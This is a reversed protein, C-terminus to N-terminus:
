LIDDYCGLKILRLKSRQFRKGHHANLGAHLHCMEHRLILLVIRPGCEWIKKDFDIKHYMLTGDNEDTWMSTEGYGDKIGRVGFKIRKPLAGLFYVDNIIDYQKAVDELTFRRPRSRSKAM